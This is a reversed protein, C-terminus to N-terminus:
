AARNFVLGFMQNRSAPDTFSKVSVQHRVEHRDRSLPLQVQSQGESRADALGRVLEKSQLSTLGTDFISVGPTAGALESIHGLEGNMQVIKFDGDLFCWGVNAAELLPLIMSLHEAGPRSAGGGDAGAGQLKVRTLEKEIEDALPNLEGLSKSRPLSEVFGNAFPSLKLRLAEIERRIMSNIPRLFFGLSLLAIGGSFALMMMVFKLPSEPDSAPRALVFGELDGGIQVPYSQPPAEGPKALNPYPVLGTKVVDWVKGTKPDVFPSKEKSEPSIEPYLVKGNRDGIMIPEALTNDLVPAPVTKLNPDRLVHMYQAAFAKFRTAQRLDAASRESYIQVFLFLVLLLIIAAAGAVWYRLGWSTKSAATKAAAIKETPMALPSVKPGAVKVQEFPEISVRVSGLRLEDTPTIPTVAHVPAGNVFTGNTSGLDRITYSDGTIQLEAHRGSITADPIVVDAPKDRGIRYVGDKLDLGLKENNRYLILKAPM